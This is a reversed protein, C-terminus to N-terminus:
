TTADDARELLRNIEDVTVCVFSNGVVFTIPGHAVVDIRVVGCKKLATVIRERLMEM